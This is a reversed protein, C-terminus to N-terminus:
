GRAPERAAEAQLARDRWYNSAQELTAERVLEARWVTPRGQQGFILTPGDHYGLPVGMFVDDGQLSAAIVVKGLLEGYNRAGAPTADPAQEAAEAPAPVDPQGSSAAADALVEDIQQLRRACHAAWTDNPHRGAAGNRCWAEYAAQSIGLAEAFDGRCDRLLALLMLKSM